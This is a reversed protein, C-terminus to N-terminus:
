IIALVTRLGKLLGEVFEGNRQASKAWAEIIEFSSRSRALHESLVKYEQSRQHFPSAQLAQIESYIAQQAEVLQLQLHKPLQPSNKDDILREAYRLKELATMQDITM